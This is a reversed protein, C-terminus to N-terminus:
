KDRGTRLSSGRQKRGEKRGETGFERTGAPSQLQVTRAEKEVLGTGLTRVLRSRFEIVVGTLWLGEWRFFDGTGRERGKGMERKEEGNGRFLVNATKRWDSRKTQKM